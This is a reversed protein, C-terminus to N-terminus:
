TDPNTDAGYGLGSALIAARSAVNGPFTFNFQNGSSQVPIGFITFEPTLTGIFIENNATNFAPYNSIGDPLQSAPVVKDGDFFQIFLGLWRLYWNKFQLNINFPDGSNPNSYALSYGNFNPTLNSLTFNPNAPVQAPTGSPQTISAVGDNRYWIKGTLDSDSLSARGSTVDAGLTTDNKVSQTAPTM